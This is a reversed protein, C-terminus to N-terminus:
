SEAAGALAHQLPHGDPYRRKVAYTDPLPILRDPSVDELLIVASEGMDSEVKVRGSDAARAGIVAALVCALLGGAWIMERPMTDM